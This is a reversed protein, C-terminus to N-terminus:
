PFEDRCLLRKLTHVIRFVENIQRQICNDQENQLAINELQTLQEMTEFIYVEFLAENM